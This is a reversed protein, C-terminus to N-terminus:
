DGLKRGANSSTLGGTTPLKQMAMGLIAAGIICDVLAEVTGNSEGDQIGFMRRLLYKAQHRQLDAQNQAINM